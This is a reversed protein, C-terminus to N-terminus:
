NEIRPHPHVKWAEVQSHPESDQFIKHIRVASHYFIGTQEAARRISLKDTLILKLLLERQEDSV